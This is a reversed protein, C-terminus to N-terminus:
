SIRFAIYYTKLINLQLNQKVKKKDNRKYFLKDFYHLEFKLTNSYKQIRVNKIAFYKTIIVVWNTTKM